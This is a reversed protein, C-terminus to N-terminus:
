SILGSDLSNFNEKLEEIFIQQASSRQAKRNWIMVINADVVGEHPPLKWLYGNEVDLQAIHAPLCGIGIGASILRKM